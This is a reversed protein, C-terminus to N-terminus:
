NGQWFSFFDNLPSNLGEKRWMKHPKCTCTENFNESFISWKNQKTSVSIILIFKWNGLKCSIIVFHAILNSLSKWEADMILVTLVRLDQEPLTRHITRTEHDLYWSDPNSDIITLFIWEEVLHRYLELCPQSKVRTCHRLIWNHNKKRKLQMQSWIIILSNLSSQLVFSDHFLQHQFFLIKSKSNTQTKYRKSTYYCLYKKLM